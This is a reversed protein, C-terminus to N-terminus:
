RVLQGFQPSRALNLLALLGQLGTQQGQLGLQARQAGLNEALGAGASGLAQQFASSSQSGSGTGTFREAINPITQEQFQRLAPAQLQELFQQNGGLLSSLTGLGQQQLGGAGGLGGFLQNFLARQEPTQTAFQELEPRQEKEGFLKQGLAPGFAQFLASLISGMGLAAM